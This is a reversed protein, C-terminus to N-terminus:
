SLQESPHNMIEDLDAHAPHEAPLSDRALDTNGMIATLLNNFDHAVGGALRGVSELRQSQLLQAELHKRDSVDRGVAIGYYRGQQRIATAQLEIWRWSGDSHRMRYTVRASGSAALQDYQEIVSIRDDPHVIDPQWPGLLEAPTYGLMAQYSPSIYIREGDGELDILSILDTTNETILRYREESERLATDVLQLAARNQELEQEHIRAANLASHLTTGFRDLILGLLGVTLIFIVVVTSTITSQSLNSGALPIPEYQLSAIATVIIISLGICLLLGRRGILFSALTMPIVLGLMAVGGIFLGVHLLLLTDALFLGAITVAVSLRLQRLRLLILASLTALELLFSAGLSIMRTNSAVPIALAFPITLLSAIFLGILMLRFLAAQRREIPNKLPVENLWCRLRNWM